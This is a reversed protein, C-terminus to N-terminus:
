TVAQWVGNATAYIDDGLGCGYFTVRIFQTAELVWGPTYGYVFDATAIAFSRMPYETGPSMLSFTVHSPSATSCYAGVDRVNLIYGTTVATLDISHDGITVNQDDVADFYRYTYGWLLSLKIWASGFFGWLGNKFYQELPSKIGM